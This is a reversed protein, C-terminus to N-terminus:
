KGTEDLYHRMLKETLPGVPKVTDDVRTLPVIGASSFTIFVEDAGMLEGLGVQGELAKIGAAGALDLVVARTVGPLVGEKPTKLIGDVFVFVNSLSGEYVIDEEVFIAEFAGRRSAKQKALVSPLYSLSKIEPLCRRGEYTVASVGRSYDAGSIEEAVIITNQRHCDIGLGAPGVGRTVTVRVRSESLDNASVVGDIWTKLQTKEFPLPLSIRRAASQLRHYHEDYKFVRGSYTRLTEFVGDGLLLGHDLVSIVAEGGDVQKGNVSVIM